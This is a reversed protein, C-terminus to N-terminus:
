RVILLLQSFAAAEPALIRPVAFCLLILFILVSTVLAFYAAISIEGADSYPGSGENKASLILRRFIFIGFGFIAMGAIAQMVGSFLERQVMSPWLYEVTTGFKEALLDIRKFMEESLTNDAM